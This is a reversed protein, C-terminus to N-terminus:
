QDAPRGPETGAGGDKGGQQVMAEAREAEAEMAQEFEMPDVAEIGAAQRLFNVVELDATEGTGTWPVGAAATDKLFAGLEALDVGRVPGHIIKPQRELDLGNIAWLRPIAHRNLVDAISDLWSEVAGLFLSIKPDALARSGVATQGLLMFDALATMAIDHRYGEIVARTDTVGRTDGGGMLELEFLLNGKEDRESPMLIGAQEDRKIRQVLNRFATYRTDGSGADLIESPIKALPLGNLRRELGIAEIEQIRKLFYWSRYARRLM